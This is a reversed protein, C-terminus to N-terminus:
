LIKRRVSSLVGSERCANIPTGDLEYGLFLKHLLKVQIDGVPGYRPIALVVEGHVMRSTLKGVIGEFLKM